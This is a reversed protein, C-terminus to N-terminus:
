GDESIPIVKRAAYYTCGTIEMVETITREGGNWARLIENELEKTTRRKKKTAPEANKRDVEKEALKLEEADYDVLCRGNIIDRFAYELDMMNDASVDIVYGTKGARYAALAEEPTVEILM